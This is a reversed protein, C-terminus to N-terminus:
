KVYRKLMQQPLCQRYLHETFLVDKGEPLKCRLPSAVELCDYVCTVLLFLQYTYNYAFFSILLCSLSLSLSNRQVPHEYFDERLFYSELQSRFSSFCSVAYFFFSCLSFCELFLFCSLFLGSPRILKIYGCFLLFAQGAPVCPVFLLTTPPLRWSVSRYYSFVYSVLM